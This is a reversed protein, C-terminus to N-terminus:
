VRHDNTMAAAATAGCKGGLCQLFHTVFIDVRHSAAEFGPLRRAQWRRHLQVGTDRLPPEGELSMQM